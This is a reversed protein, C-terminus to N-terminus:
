SSSFFQTTTRTAVFYATIPTKVLKFYQMPARRRPIIIAHLNPPHLHYNFLVDPIPSNQNRPLRRILGDLASFTEKISNCQRRCPSDFRLHGVTNAWNMVLMIARHVSTAIEGVPICFAGVVIGNLLVIVALFNRQKNLNTKLTERAFRQDRLGLSSNRRRRPAGDFCPQYVIQIRTRRQGDPM